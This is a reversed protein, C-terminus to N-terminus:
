YVRAYPRLENYKSKDIQVDVTLYYIAASKGPIGGLFVPPRRYLQRGVTEGFRFM